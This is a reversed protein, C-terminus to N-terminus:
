LLVTAMMWLAAAARAAFAWLPRACAAAAWVGMFLLFNYPLPALFFAIAVAHPAHAAFLLVALLTMTFNILTGVLFMDKWFIRKLPVEGRWRSAFFTTVGRWRLVYRLGESRTPSM